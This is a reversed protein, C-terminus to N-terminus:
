SMLMDWQIDLSFQWVYSEKERDYDFNELDYAQAINVRFLNDRRLKRAWNYMQSAIIRARSAYKDRIEFRYAANFYSGTASEMADGLGVFEESGTIFMMVIRPLLVDTRSFEREILSKGFNYTIVVADSVTAGTSLTVKTKEKGEGYTVTYDYGKRKTVGAVTITERVNKVFPQKLWFVTQSATATHTEQISKNRDEPDVQNNRFYDLLDQEREYIYEEAM